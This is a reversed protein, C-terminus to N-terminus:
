HTMWGETGRKRPLADYRGARMRQRCQARWKTMSIRRSAASEKHYRVKGYGRPDNSKSM